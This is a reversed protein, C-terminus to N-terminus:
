ELFRIETTCAAHQMQIYGRKSLTLLQTCESNGQIDVTEGGGTDMVGFETGRTKVSAKKKDSSIEVGLVEIKNSYKNVDEAGQNVSQMYDDKGLSMANEQPPFGPIIFTMTSVFRADDHIHRRLYLQVQEEKKFQSTGSTVKNTTTIFSRIANEDLTRYKKAHADACLIVGCLFIIAFIGWFRM